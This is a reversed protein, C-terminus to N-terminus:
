GAAFHDRLDSWSDFKGMHVETVVGDVIVATSPLATAPLVDGFGVMYTGYPDGWNTYTVGTKRLEALAYKEYRDRNIGVVQVGLEDHLRELLPLEDRCPKCWSAWFNMVVPEGPKVAVTESDDLPSATPFVVRPGDVTTWGLRLAGDGPADSLGSMGCGATLCVVM